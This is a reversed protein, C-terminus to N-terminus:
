PLTGSVAKQKFTPNLQCTNLVKLYLEENIVTLDLCYDLFELVQAPSHIGEEKM